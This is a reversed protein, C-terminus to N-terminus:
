IVNAPGEAERIRRLGLRRERWIVFIGSAAVIVGGVLFLARRQWHASTVKASRLLRTSVIQRM